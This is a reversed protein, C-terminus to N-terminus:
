HSHSGKRQELARVVQVPLHMGQSRLIRIHPHCGPAHGGDPTTGAQQGHIKAAHSVQQGHPVPAPIEEDVETRGVVGDPLLSPDWLLSHNPLPPAQPSLLRTIFQGTLFHLSTDPCADLIPSLPLWDGPCLCYYIAKLWYLPFETHM